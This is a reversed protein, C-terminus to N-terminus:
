AAGGFTADSFLPQVSLRKAAAECYAESVEVGIARRGMERAAVLTTGSGAFPDLVVGGTPVSFHILPSVIGIPKQTPHVASGHSSRVQLVSRMLRPGGDESVFPAKDIQGMQTPRRKTRVVRKVADDTTPVEHRISSWDGRYWLAALEHVRKFRDNHFGSGNHKEWVIEHSFKWGDFDRANDLFMRMSGFCWLADTLGTLKAPWGDPWRDWVLSTEGYPPDTVVADVPTLPADRFDGHYLTVLDDEYYPKM